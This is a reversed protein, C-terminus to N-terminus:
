TAALRREERGRRGVRRGPSTAPARTSTISPSEIVVSWMEGAPRSGAGVRGRAPVQLSCPTSGRSKLLKPERRPLWSTIIRPVKPFMRRRLSSARALLAGPRRVQGGALDRADVLGGHAVPVVPVGSTTSAPLSYPLPELRSQAAM